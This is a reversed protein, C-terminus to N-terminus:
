SNKNNRNPIVTSADHIWHPCVNIGTLTRECDYIERGEGDPNGLVSSFLATADEEREIGLSMVLKDAVLPKM